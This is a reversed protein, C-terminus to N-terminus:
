PKKEPIGLATLKAKSAKVWQLVNKKEDQTLKSSPHMFSYFRTPMTGKTAVENIANLDEIPEGHGGFPFGKSIELHEKAESRDSEILQHLGPIKSYWPSQSKESHCAACKMNFIPQVSKAYETQIDDYALKLEAEANAKKSEQSGSERHHEEHAVVSVGIVLMLIFSCLKIGLKFEFMEAFKSSARM